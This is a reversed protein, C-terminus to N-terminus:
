TVRWLVEMGRRFYVKARLSKYVAEDTQRTLQRAARLAM